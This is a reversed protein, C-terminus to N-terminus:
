LKTIKKFASMKWICGSAVDWPYYWWYDSRGDDSFPSIEIGDYQESVGKWDIYTKYKVFSGDQTKVGWKNNFEWLEDDNTIFLINQKNLEIEFANKKEWNPMSLRVYDIWQTGIGYWIGNPKHGTKQASSPVHDEFVYYKFKLEEDNSTVIRSDPKLKIKNYVEDPLVNEFNEYLKIYKM